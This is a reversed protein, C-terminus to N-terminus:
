KTTQTIQPQHRQSFNHTSGGDPRCLYSNHAVIDLRGMNEAVRKPVTPSTKTGRDSVEEEEQGRCSMEKPREIRGAKAWKKGHM